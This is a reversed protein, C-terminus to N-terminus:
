MTAYTYTFNFYQKLERLFIRYSEVSQPVIKSDKPKWITDPLDVLVLDLPTTNIHKQLLRITNNVVETDQNILVFTSKDEQKFDLYESLLINTYKGRHREQLFQLEKHDALKYGILEFINQQISPIKNRGFLENFEDPINVNVCAIGPANYHGFHVGYQPYVVSTPNINRRILELAVSSTNFGFCCGTRLTLPQSGFIFPNQTTPKHVRIM